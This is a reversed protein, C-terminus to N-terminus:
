KSVQSFTVFKSYLLPFSRGTPIRDKPLHLVWWGCWRYSCLLNFRKDDELLFPMQASEERSEAEMQSMDFHLDPKEDRLVDFLSGRL